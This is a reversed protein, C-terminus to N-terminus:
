LKSMINTKEAMEYPEWTNWIGELNCNFEAENYDLSAIRRLSALIAKSAEKSITFSRKAQVLNQKDLLYLTGRMAAEQQLLEQLADCEHPNFVFDSTDIADDVTILFFPIDYISTYHLECSAQNVAKIEHECWMEDKIVFCWEGDLFDVLTGEAEINAFFTENVEAKM